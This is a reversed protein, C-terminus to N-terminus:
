NKVLSFYSCLRFNTTRKIREDGKTREMSNIFFVTLRTHQVEHNMVGDEAAVRQNLSKQFDM